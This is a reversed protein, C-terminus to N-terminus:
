GRGGERIAHLKAALDARNEATRLREGLWPFAGTAALPALLPTAKGERHEGTWRLWLPLSTAILDHITTTM